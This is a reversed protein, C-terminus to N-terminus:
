GFVTSTTGNINEEWQPTKVRKELLRPNRVGPDGDPPALQFDPPFFLRLRSAQTFTDCPASPAEAEGNM